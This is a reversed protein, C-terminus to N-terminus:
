PADAATLAATAEVQDASPARPLDSLFSVTHRVLALLNDYTLIEIGDSMREKAQLRAIQERSLGCGIILFCRPNEFRLGKQRRLYDQERRVFDLYKEAQNWADNFPAAFEGDEKFRPLFPDKIELIDRAGDRVRVATFDPINRDDLARHAQVVKFQAGFTWPHRELFAQYQAEGRARIGLLRELAQVAAALPEPDPRQSRAEEVDVFLFDDPGLDEGEIADRKAIAFKLRGGQYLGILGAFPDVGQLLMVGDDFWQCFSPSAYITRGDLLGEAAYNRTIAHRIRALLQLGRKHRLLYEYVTSDGGRNRAPPAVAAFFRDLLKPRSLVDVRADADVRELAVVAKRFLDAARSVKTHRPM